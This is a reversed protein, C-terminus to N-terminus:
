TNDNPRPNTVKVKNEFSSTAWPPHQLGGHLQVGRHHHLLHRHALGDQESKASTSVEDKKGGPPGRRYNFQRGVINNLLPVSSQPKTFNALTSKLHIMKWLKIKQWPKKWKVSKSLINQSQINDLIFRQLCLKLDWTQRQISREVHYCLLLTVWRMASVVNEFM